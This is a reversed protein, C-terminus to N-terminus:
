ARGGIWSGSCACTEIGKFAAVVKGAALVGGPGHVVALVTSGAGADPLEADDFTISNDGTKIDETTDKFVIRQEAEGDVPPDIVVYEIYEVGTVDADVSFKLEM